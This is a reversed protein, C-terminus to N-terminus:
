RRGGEYARGQLADRMCWHQLMTRVVNIQKREPSEQALPEVAEPLTRQEGDGALKLLPLMVSQFDSVAM